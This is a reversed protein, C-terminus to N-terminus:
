RQRSPTRVLFASRDPRWSTRVAGYRDGSGAGDFGVSVRLDEIRPRGAARWQSVLDAVPVEASATGYGELWMRNDSGSLVAIIRGSRDFTAVARQPSARYQSRFYGAL